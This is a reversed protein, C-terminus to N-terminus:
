EEEESVDRDAYVIREVLPLRAYRMMIQVVTVVDRECYDMIKELDNETYYVYGVMSGDINDKPSKVGLTYSLTDISTYNKYDGFRWMHMTDLIHSLQWPRKDSINLLAPLNIGHVVMRRCLYPIDFEKINHGCLYDTEMNNFYLDMLEKFDKLLADEEGYFTKIKLLFDSDIERLYGVSISIIKGYEAYIAARETYMLEVDIADADQYRMLQLCKKRWLDKGRDDLDEFSEYQSVTEIDLFLIHPIHSPHVIM